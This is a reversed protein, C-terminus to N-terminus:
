HSTGMFISLLLTIERLYLKSFSFILHLKRVIEQQINLMLILKSASGDMWGDMMDDGTDKLKMKNYEANISGTHPSGLTATDKLHTLPTGPM